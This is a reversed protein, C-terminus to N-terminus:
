KENKRNLLRYVFYFFWSFLLLILLDVWQIGRPFSSYLNGALLFLWLLYAIWLVINSLKISLSSKKEEKDKHTNTTWNDSEIVDDKKLKNLPLTLTIYIWTLVSYPYWIDFDGTVLVMIMIQIITLLVVLLFTRALFLGFSQLSVIEKQYGWSSQIIIVWAILFIPYVILWWMGTFASLILTGIFIYICVKKLSLEKM